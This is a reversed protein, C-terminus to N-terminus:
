VDLGLSALGLFGRSMETVDINYDWDKMLEIFAPQIFPLGQYLYPSRRFNKPKPKEWAYFGVENAWARPDKEQPARGLKSQQDSTQEWVRSQTLSGEARGFSVQFEFTPVSFNRSETAKVVHIQGSDALQGTSKRVNHLAINLYVQAAGQCAIYIHNTLQEAFSATGDKISIEVDVVDKLDFM